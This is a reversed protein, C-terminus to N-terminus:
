LVVCRHILRMSHEERFRGIGCSGYNRFGLFPISFVFLRRALAPKKTHPFAM